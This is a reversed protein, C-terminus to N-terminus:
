SPETSNGLLNEIATSVAIDNSLTKKLEAGLRLINEYPNEM